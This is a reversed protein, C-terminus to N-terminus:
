AVRPLRVTFRDGEACTLTGQDRVIAFSALALVEAVLANPAAPSFPGVITLLATDGIEITVEVARGLHNPGATLDFLQALAHTMAPVAVRVTCAPLAGRLKVGVREAAHRLLEDLAIEVRQPTKALARNTTLLQHLERLAAQATDIAGLTMPDAEASLESIEDLAMMLSQLKSAADHHFGPMRSGLLALECLRQEAIRPHRQCEHGTEDHHETM